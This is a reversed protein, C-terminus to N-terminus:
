GAATVAFSSPLLGRDRAVGLAAVVGRTVADEQGVLMNSFQM